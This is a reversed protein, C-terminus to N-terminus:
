SRRAKPKSMGANALIDPLQDMLEALKAVADRQDADNDRCFKALLYHIPTLDGTKEIYRELSDVSFHREGSEGLQVSLNGPAIDLLPAVRGLGRKYVGTAVVEKLSRYRETLGEDLALTLQVRDDSILVSKM